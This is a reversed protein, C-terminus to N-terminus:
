SLLIGKLHKFLYEQALPHSVGYMDWAMCGKRSVIKSVLDRTPLILIPVNSIAVAREIIRRHTHDKKTQLQSTYSRVFALKEEYCNNKEVKSLFRAVYESLCQISKDLFEESYMQKHKNCWWEFLGPCDYWENKWDHSANREGYFEEPVLGFPESITVVHIKKRQRGLKDLTRFLTKYSRSTNYPKETSCPYILLVRKEPPPLYHNSIFDLWRKITSNATLGRYVEEPNYFCLDQRIKVGNGKRASIEKYLETKTLCSITIKEKLEM